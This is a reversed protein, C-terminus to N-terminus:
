QWGGLSKDWEQRICNNTVTCPTIILARFHTEDDGGPIIKQTAAETGTGPLEGFGNGNCYGGLGAEDDDTSFSVCVLFSQNANDTNVYYFFDAPSGGDFSADVYPDLVGGGNEQLAAKFSSFIGTGPTASVDPYKRSDTYYSQFAQYLQDVANQHAINNARQMAFRAVAVGIGMLVSLIGMVILMEVLTFGKYKQKM